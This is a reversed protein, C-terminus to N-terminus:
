EQVLQYLIIELQRAAIKSKLKATADSLKGITGESHSVM